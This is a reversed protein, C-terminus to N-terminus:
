VRTNLKKSSRWHWVRAETHVASRPNKTPQFYSIFRYAHTVISTNPTWVSTHTHSITHVFQCVHIHIASLRTYMDIRTHTDREIHAYSYQMHMHIYIYTWTRVHVMYIGRTCEYVICMCRSSRRWLIVEGGGVVGCGWLGGV